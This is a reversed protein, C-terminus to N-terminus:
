PPVHAKEIFRKAVALDEEQHECSISTKTPPADDDDEAVQSSKTDDVKTNKKCHSIVGKVILFHFPRDMKINRDVDKMPM